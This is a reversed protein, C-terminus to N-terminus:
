KLAGGEVEAAQEPLEKAPRVTVAQVPVTVAGSHTDATIRVEANMGPLAGAPRVPLAVVVAFSVVEAESGANRIIAKQALEVVEGVFVQGELADLTVGAKQGQRLHIVEHESVELKVEMAALAAVTMVVDESFDSGRVREGVERSLEIVTGDMPSVLTTKGLQTLSEELVAGAQVARQRAASLRAEAADVAARAQERDATSSIGKALLGDVRQLEATTRAVEVEAARADAKSANTAASAQRVSAEFRRRDIRGLVQGRTVRDGQLVRLETLDGSLNSSIRVTTSAALKGSGAIVRSIDARKAESLSVEEAPEPRERLGAATIAVAGSVLVLGVLTKWWTM